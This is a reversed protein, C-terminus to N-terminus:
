KKIVLVVLGLVVAGGIAWPVWSPLGGFPGGTGTSASSAVSNQTSKIQNLQDIQTQTKDAKIDEVTSWAGLATSLLSGIGDAVAGLSNAQTSTADVTDAM